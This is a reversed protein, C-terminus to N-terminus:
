RASRFNSHTETKDPKHSESPTWDRDWDLECINTEGKLTNQQHFSNPAYHGEGQHHHTVTYSHLQTVTYGLRIHPVHLKIAWTIQTPIQPVQHSVVRIVLVTPTVIHSYNHPNSVRNRKSKWLSQFTLCPSCFFSYLCICFLVSILMVKSRTALTAMVSDEVQPLILNYIVFILKRHVGSTSLSCHM